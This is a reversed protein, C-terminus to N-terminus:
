DSVIIKGQMSPMHHSCVYAYEGAERFTVDISGTQGHQITVNETNMAPISVAHTIGTDTNHVMLRLREDVRAHLTPNNDGFRLDKAELVIVRVPPDLQKSVTVTAAILVALCCITLLYKVNRNM